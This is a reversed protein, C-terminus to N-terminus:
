YGLLTGLSALDIRRGKAVRRGEHLWNLQTEPLAAEKEKTSADKKESGPAAGLRFKTQSISVLVKRRIAEAVYKKMAPVDPCEKCYVLRLLGSVFAKNAELGDELGGAAKPARSFIEEMIVFQRKKQDAESGEKGSGPGHDEDEDGDSDDDSNDSNGGNKHALEVDDNSKLV